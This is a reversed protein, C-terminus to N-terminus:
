GGFLWIESFNFMDGSRKGFQYGGTDRQIGGVILSWFKHRTWDTQIELTKTRKMKLILFFDDHCLFHRELFVGRSIRLLFVITM